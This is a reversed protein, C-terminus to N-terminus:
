ASARRGQTLEQGVTHFNPVTAVCAREVNWEEGEEDVVTSIGKIESVVRLAKGELHQSFYLPEPSNGDVNYLARHNVDDTLMVLKKM